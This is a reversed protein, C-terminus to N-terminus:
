RRFRLGLWVTRPAGLREEPLRGVTFREGLLNEATLTLEVGAPLPATVSGDVVWLEGLSLQELDDEFADSTWRSELLWRLPQHSTLAGPGRVAVRLAAQHRPVQPLRRGTAQVEPNSFLYALRLRLKEGVTAGVEAEVGPVEVEGLNQRQRLILDEEVGVTVNGVPDDLLNFFANVRGWLVVRGRPMPHFDAGAEVGTLREESLEPNAQTVVNGVRFPRYLENLTPARFGRYASARVTLTQGADVVAGLRPSFTTQTTRNEWLDVRSGATLEVSETPRWRQQVFAGALNQSRDRGEPAGDRWTVRRLDAGLLLGPAGSPEFTASGGFATAPIEQVATQVERDRGAFVRSFTSEFRQWQGYLNWTWQEGRFGGEVLALRSDNTQVETGNNREERYLHTGLHYRGRHLRGSVAEFDVSAPRDVAGRDEPALLFFGGTRYARAALTWGWAVSDEDPGGDASSRAVSSRDSAFVEIDALGREGGRSILEFTEATAPRPRLHVTGGLASSGWLPSGAGRAVEVAGLASVPLRNWYIWGGFPDNLPMGDYLVLSRSTGSPGIGRLSVGQTTPHGALSSTRRFLSFGPVQRLMEDLTVAASIALEQRSMSTVLAPADTLAEETRSATVVVIDEFASAPEPEEADASPEAPTPPLVLLCFLLTWM